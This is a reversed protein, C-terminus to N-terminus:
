LALLLEGLAKEDKRRMHLLVRQLKTAVEIVDSPMGAVKAAEIGYSSESVGDELSYCYTFNGDGMFRIATRKYKTGEVSGEPGVGMQHALLLPLEHYHTAFLCMSQNVKLVRELVGCALALGDQSSTGRGVEDMIILSRPTARKVINATEQMEVRFTSQNAALNDSAGVRSYVADMIGIKALTAPVYLGAHAMIAILAIQRLFTSKGGMNPGTIIWTRTDQNLAADNSTYSNSRLLQMNEVVPHRSEKLELGCEEVMEPKVYNWKSAIFAMSVTVDLEAVAESTRIIEPTKNRIKQCAEEFIRLETQIQQDQIAKYMNFLQTWKAHTYKKKTAHKQRHIKGISKDAEVLDTVNDKLKVSICPGDRPDEVLAVESGYQQTLKNKLEEIKNECEVKKNKLLDLEESIGAGITGPVWIKGKLLKSAGMGQVVSGPLVSTEDVVDADDNTNTITNTETFLGKYENVVDMPPSLRKVLQILDNNSNPEAFDLLYERLTQIQELSQLLLIVDKPKASQLHLRQLGRELDRIQSLHRQTETLLPSSAPLSHFSEILNHRRRIEQINTSPSKLRSVLLREGQSTKTQNIESILSGKKDHDRISKVIELSTMTASDIHMIGTACIDPGSTVSNSSTYNFHPELGCFLENLYAFLAGAAFLTPVTTNQGLLRPTSENQTSDLASLAKTAFDTAKLSHRLVNMPDLRAQVHECQKICFMPDNAHPRHTIQIGAIEARERITKFIAPPMSNENCTVIESPSIRTLDSELTEESSEFVFFEGTSIDTWSLGIRIPSNLSQAPLVALSLLFCNGHHLEIEASEDSVSTLLPAGKTVIRTVARSFNKTPSWHDKTVQDVIAVRVNAEAVLRPVYRDLSALPFGCMRPQSASEKSIHLDLLQAIADLNMEVPQAYEFLEYFGGVQVLLVVVDGTKSVSDRLRLVESKLSSTSASPTTSTASTTSPQPQIRQQQQQQQQLVPVTSGGGGGGGGAPVVVRLRTTKVTESKVASRKLLRTLASSSSAQRTFQRVFM